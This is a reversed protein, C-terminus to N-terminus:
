LSRSTQRSQGHALIDQGGTISDMALRERMGCAIAREVIFKLM